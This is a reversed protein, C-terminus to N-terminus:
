QLRRAMGCSIEGFGFIVVFILIEVLFLSFLRFVYPIEGPKWWASM